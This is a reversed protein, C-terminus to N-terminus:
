SAKTLVQNLRDGYQDVTLPRTYDFGPLDNPSLEGKRLRRARTLGIADNQVFPPQRSLWTHYTPIDVLATHTIPITFSRCGWHAPPRPGDRYSYVRGNRSRCVETTRGDLIACWQYTETALAGLYHAIYAAAHQINTQVVTRWQRQQKKLLGPKNRTGVLQRAVAEATEKNAYGRMIAKRVADLTSALVGALALEPEIGVGAIPANSLEGWLRDNRVTPEETDTLSFITSMANLDAAMFQRLHAMTVRATKGFTARVLRNAEAIFGNLKRRPIDGMNEYGLRMLLVAIVSAIEAFMDESQQAEGDKYGEIYVQRTTYYDFTDVM